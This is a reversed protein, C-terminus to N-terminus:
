RRRSRSSGPTRTPFIHVGNDTYKIQMVYAPEYKGTRRNYTRGIPTRFTIYEHVANGGQSIKIQGTGAHTAVFQAPNIDKRLLSKPNGRDRIAKQSEKRWKTNQLKEHDVHAADPAFRSFEVRHTYQTNKDIRTNVDGNQLHRRFAAVKASNNMSMDAVLNSIKFGRAGASTTSRWM